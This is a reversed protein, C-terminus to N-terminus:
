KIDIEKIRNCIINGITSTSSGDWKKIFSIIMDYEDGRGKEYAILESATKFYSSDPTIEKLENM